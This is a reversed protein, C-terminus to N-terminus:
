ALFKYKTGTSSQHFSDCVVFTETDKDVQKLINEIKTKDEDSELIAKWTSRGLMAMLEVIREILSKAFSETQKRLKTEEEGLELLAANVVGLRTKIMSFLKQLADKNDYIANGFDILVNVANVPTQLPTGELVKEFKKLLM